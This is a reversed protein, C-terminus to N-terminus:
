QYDKDFQLELDDFDEIDYQNLSKKLNTRQAKISKGHVGGRNNDDRAVLNRSKGKKHDVSRRNFSM